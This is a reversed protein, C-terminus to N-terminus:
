ERLRLEVLDAEVQDVEVRQGVLGAGPIELVVEVAGALRQFVVPGHDAADVVGEAFVVADEKADVAIVPLFVLIAVEAVVDVAHDQVAVVLADGEVVDVDEVGVQQEVDAVAEGVLVERLPAGALAEVEGRQAERLLKIESTLGFSLAVMGLTAPRGKM